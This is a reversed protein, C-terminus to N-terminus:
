ELIKKIEEEVDENFPAISNANLRDIYEALVVVARTLEFIRMELAETTIPFCRDSM